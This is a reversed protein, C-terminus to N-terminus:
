FLLSLAGFMQVSSIFGGSVTNKKHPSLTSNNNNENMQPVLLYAPVHARLSRDRCKKRTLSKGVRDEIARTRYIVSHAVQVYAYLCASIFCVYQVSAVRHRAKGRRLLSGSRFMRDRLLEQQPWYHGSALM